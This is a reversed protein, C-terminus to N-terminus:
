LEPQNWKYEDKLTKAVFSADGPTIFEGTLKLFDEKTLTDRLTAIVNRFFQKAGTTTTGSGGNQRNCPM